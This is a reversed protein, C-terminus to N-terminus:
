GAITTYRGRPLGKMLKNLSAFPTPITEFEELESGLTITSSKYEKNIKNILANLKSQKEKDM